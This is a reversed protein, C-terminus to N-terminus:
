INEKIMNKKLISRLRLWINSGLSASMVNMYKVIHVEMTEIDDSVFECEECRYKSGYCGNFSHTHRHLKMERVTKFQEECLDCTKLDLAHKRKM